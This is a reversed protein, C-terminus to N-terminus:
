GLQIQEGDVKVLGEATLTTNEAHLSMTARAEYDVHGARLHDVEEIVRFAHRARQVIRDLIADVAGFVATIRTAHLRASATHLSFAPAAITAETAIISLKGAARLETDRPSVLSVPTDGERELVALVYAEAVAGSQAVLVLDGPEPEVLCSLARHALFVSGEAAVLVGRASKARVSAVTQGWPEVDLWRALAKPM